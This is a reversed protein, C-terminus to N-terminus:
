MYVGLSKILSLSQGLILYVIQILFSNNYAAVFGSCIYPAAGGKYICLSLIHIICIYYFFNVILVSNQIKPPAHAGVIWWTAKDRM